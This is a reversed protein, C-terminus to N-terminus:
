QWLFCKDFPSSSLIQLKGCSHSCQRAWVFAKRQWQLTVRIWIQTWLQAQFISKLHPKWTGRSVKCLDVSWHQESGATATVFWNGCDNLLLEWCQAVPLCLLQSAKLESTIVKTWQFSSWHVLGKESFILPNWNSGLYAPAASEFLVDSFVSGLFGGMIRDEVGCLFDAKLFPYIFDHVSPSQDCYFFELTEKEYLVFSKKEERQLIHWLLFILLQKYSSICFASFCPSERVHTKWSETTKQWSQYSLFPFTKPLTGVLATLFSSFM